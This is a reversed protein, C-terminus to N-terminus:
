RDMSLYEMFDVLGCLHHAGPSLGHLHPKDCLRKCLECNVPCLRTDCSHAEHEQESRFTYNTPLRASDFQFIGLFLVAKRVLSLRGVLCSFTESPVPSFFVLLWALFIKAVVSLVM